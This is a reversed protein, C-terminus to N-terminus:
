VTAESEFGRGVLLNTQYIKVTVPDGPTIGDTTQNAASYAATQATADITRVVVGSLLIDIEYTEAAEGLTVDGTSSQWLGGVRTRRAWTITLNNSVDRTGHIFCPSYPFYSRAAIELATVPHVIDSGITIPKFQRVQEYDANPAAYREIAVTDLLIFTDGISHGAKFTNTGRRGRLLGSLTYTGDGNDTATQFQIIEWGEGSKLAAANMGNLVDLKSVSALTGAIIHVTISRFPDWSAWGSSDGLITTARGWTVSDLATGIKAFSFGDESRLILAGHWSTNRAGCGFYMVIGTGLNYDADRLYPIDMVFLETFGADTISQSGSEGGYGAALSSFIDIDDILAQLQLIGNAGLASDLIFASYTRDGDVITGVDGPDIRVHRLFTSTQLEKRRNWGLYLWKEALQKAETDSLVLDLSIENRDRSITGDLSRSVHQENIEYDRTEDIYSVGVHFPVEEENGLSLKLRTNDDRYETNVGIENNALTFVAATGLRKFKIIWDSEVGLFLYAQTLVQLLRSATGSRAYSLGRVDISALDTVDVDAAAMGSRICIDEVVESLAETGNTIRDLYLRYTYYTSGELNIFYCSNTREDWGAPHGYFTIDTFVSMDYAKETLLTSANLIYLDHNVYIAINRGQIEFHQSQQSFAFSRIVTFTRSHIDWKGIRDSGYCFLILSHDDANYVIYEVAGGMALVPDSMDLREITFDGIKDSGPFAESDPNDVLTIQIKFLYGLARGHVGGGGWVAGDRDACLCNITPSLQPFVPQEYDSDALWTFSYDFRSAYGYPRLRSPYLMNKKEQSYVSIEATQDSAFVMCKEGSIVVPVGSVWIHSRDWGGATSDSGCVSITKLTDPDIQYIPGCNGKTFQVYIRGQEDMSLPGLSSGGSYHEISENENTSNDFAHFYKSWASYLRGRAHDIIHDSADALLAAKAYPYAPASGFAIVAQFSPVRNGFNTVNMDEFVIYCCGRFAPVMGAGEISEILPDPDQTESGTYFRFQIGYENTVADEGVPISGDSSADYLLKNDLYLKLLHKAERNAFCVALSCTYYYEVIQPGGKASTKRKHEVLDTKWIVNGGMPITGYGIGIPIGQSSITVSLDDLRPGKQDKGFFWAGLLSGALFGWPGFAAGGALALGLQAM